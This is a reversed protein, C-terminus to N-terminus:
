RGLYSTILGLKFSLAVYNNSLLSDSFRKTNCNIQMCLPWDPETYASVSLDSVRQISETFESLSHWILDSGSYEHLM